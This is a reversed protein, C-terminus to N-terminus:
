RAVVNTTESKPAKDDNPRKAEIIGQALDRSAEAMTSLHQICSPGCFFVCCASRIRNCSASHQMTKLIHNNREFALCFNITQYSKEMPHCSTARRKLASFQPSARLELHLSCMHFHFAGLFRGWSVCCPTCKILTQQARPM